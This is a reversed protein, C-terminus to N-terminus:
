KIRHIKSRRENEIGDMIDLYDNHLCETCYPELRPVRMPDDVDHTSIVVCIKEQKCSTCILPDYFM